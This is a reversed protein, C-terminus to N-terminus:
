DFDVNQDIPDEWDKVTVKLDLNTAPEGRFTLVLQLVRNIKPVISIEVPTKGFYSKNGLPMSARLRLKHTTTDNHQSEFADAGRHAPVIFNVTDAKLQANFNFHERIPKDGSHEPNVEDPYYEGRWNLTTPVDLLDVFAYENRGPNIPDFGTYEKLIVQIKAVNRHLTAQKSTIEKAVIVTNMLSDYRLEAPAQSLFERAPAILETRWMPYTSAGGYPPLIVKGALSTNCTLLMLNWTGIPMYTSLKNDKNIINLKKEVFKDGDTFVYISANDMYVPDTGSKLRMMVNPASSGDGGASIQDENGNCGFTFLLLTFAILTKFIRVFLVISDSFINVSGKKNMIM